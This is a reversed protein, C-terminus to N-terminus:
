VTVALGDYAFKIREYEREQERFDDYSRGYHHSIHSLFAQDPDIRLVLERIEEHSLDDSDEGESRIREGDPGYVFHGCELVIADLDNPLLTEDFHRADDAVLALTEKGDRFVLGTAETPGDATLSYPVAEVRFQDAQFPNEDLFHIDALELEEVYYRLTGVQECTREYVDRTTVVTPISQRKGELHTEGERVETPKMALLRLGATHDPHWHTLFLHDLETIEWRNLNFPGFESVDIMARLEPLYM